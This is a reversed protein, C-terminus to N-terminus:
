QDQTNLPYALKFAVTAMFINDRVYTKSVWSTDTIFIPIRDTGNIYYVEPSTLLEELWNQDYQSIWDTNVVYDIEVDQSLVANIREGQLYNWNLNNMWENRTTNITRQSDKNFVYYEYSGRRNLFTLQIPTTATKDIPPNFNQLGNYWCYNCDRNIYRTILGLNLYTEPFITQIHYPVIEYYTINTFDIGYADILNQTGIGMEYKIAPYNTDLLDIRSTTVISGNSDYGLFQFGQVSYSGGTASAVSLFGITEYTGLVTPKGNVGNNLNYSAYDTLFSSSAGTLVYKSFDTYNKGGETYQRTGNWGYFDGVTGVIRQLNTITGNETTSPTVGYLINLVAATAGTNVGEVIATTNYQPNYLNNTMQITIQDGAKIDQPSTFNLELFEVFFTFASTTFTINPDYSFGYDVGYRVYSQTVATIGQLTIDWDPANNIVSRLAKYPNFLGTGTLNSVQNYPRPPEYYQGLQEVIAGTIIDKQYLDFVYKFNPLSYSACQSQFWMGSGNVANVTSYTAAQTILSVTFSM